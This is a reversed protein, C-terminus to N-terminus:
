YIQSTVEITRRYILGATCIIIAGVIKFVFTNEMHIEIIKGNFLHCYIAMFNVILFYTYHVVGGLGLKSKMFKGYCCCEVEDNMSALNMVIFALYYVFLLFYILINEGFLICLIPVAIEFAPMGYPLISSLPKNIFEIKSITNKTYPFYIVKSIGGFCMAIITAIM